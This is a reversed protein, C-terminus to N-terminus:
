TPDVFEVGGELMRHVPCRRAIAQLRTLQEADLDGGFALRVAIRDKDHGSARHREVDAEVGVLPWGKRRAYLLATIAM